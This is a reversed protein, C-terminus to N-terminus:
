PGPEIGPLSVAINAIVGTLPQPRQTLVMHHTIEPGREQDGDSEM